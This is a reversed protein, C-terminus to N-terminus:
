QDLEKGEREGLTEHATNYVDELEIPIERRTDIFDKRVESWAGELDKLTAARKLHTIGTSADFMPLNGEPEPTAAAKKGGRARMQEKVQDTKSAPVDVPRADGAAVEAVPPAIEFWAGVESMGDKLSTYIRRLTLVQAPLISEIRRQIRKEIMEQSVAFEEFKEILKQILEPTIQVKARLTEDIQKEAQEQVDSPIVALICARKRRAGMNAIVEYIDREDTVPHGGKKTDRWHKVFFRKADRFGTELDVAYSGPM